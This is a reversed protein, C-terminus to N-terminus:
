KIKWFRRTQRLDLQLVYRGCVDPAHSSRCQLSSADRFPALVVVGLAYVWLENRGAHAAGDARVLSYVGVAMYALTLM